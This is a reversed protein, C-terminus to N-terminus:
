MEGKATKVDQQYIRNAIDPGKPKPQKPERKICSGVMAMIIAELNLINVKDRAREAAIWKIMQEEPIEGSNWKQYVEYGFRSVIEATYADVTDFIHKKEAKANSKQAKVRLEALEEDDMLDSAQFVQKQPIKAKAESLTVAPKQVM